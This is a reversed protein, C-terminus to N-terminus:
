INYYSYVTINKQTLKGRSYPSSFCYHLGAEHPIKNAKGFDDAEKKTDFIGLITENEGKLLAVAFKIKMIRDKRNDKKTQPLKNTLYNYVGIHVILRVSLVFVRINLAFYANPYLSFAFCHM